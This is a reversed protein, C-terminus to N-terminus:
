HTEELGFFTEPDAIRKLIHTNLKSLDEQEQFAKILMSDIQAYERHYDFDHLFQQLTHLYQHEFPHLLPHEFLSGQWILIKHESVYSRLGDDYAYTAVLEDALCLTVSITKRFEVLGPLHAQWRNTEGAPGRAVLQELDEYTPYDKFHTHFDDISLVYRLATPNRPSRREGFTIGTYFSFLRATVALYRAFRAHVRRCYPSDAPYYKIDSSSPSYSQSTAQPHETPSSRRSIHYVAQTSSPALSTSSATELGPMSDESDSITTALSSTSTVPRLGPMSCDSCSGDSDVDHADAAETASSANVEPTAIVEMPVEAPEEDNRIAAAPDDHATFVESPSLIGLHRSVAELLPRFRGIRAADAPYPSQAPHRRRFAVPTEPVSRIVPPPSSYRAYMDDDDDLQDHLNNDTPALNTNIDDTSVKPGMSQADETNLTDADTESDADRTSLREFGRLPLQVPSMPYELEGDYEDDADSSSSDTNTSPTLTTWDSVYYDQLNSYAGMRRLPRPPSEVAPRPEYEQAAPPITLVISPQAIIDTAQPIDNADTTPRNTALSDQQSDHLLYEPSRLDHTDTTQATPIAPYYALLEEAKSAGPRKPDLERFRGFVSQPWFSAALWFLYEMLPIRICVWRLWNGRDLIHGEVYGGVLLNRPVVDNAMKLGRYLFRVAITLVHREPVSFYIFKPENLLDLPQLTDLDPLMRQGAIWQWIYVPPLPTTFHTLNELTAYIRPPPTEDESDLATGRTPANIAQAYRPEVSPIYILDRPSPPPTPSPLFPRPANSSEPESTANESNSTARDSETAAATALLRLDDAPPQVPAAAPLEIESEQDSEDDSILMRGTMDFVRPDSAKFHFCGHHKGEATIFEGDRYFTLVAGPFDLCAAVDTPDEPNRDLSVIRAHASSVTMAAPCLPESPSSLSLRLPPQTEPVRTVPMGKRITSIERFLLTGLPKREGRPKKDREALVRNIEDENNQAKEAAKELGELGKEGSKASLNLTSFIPKIPPINEKDSDSDEGKTKTAEHNESNIEPPKNDDSNPLFHKIRESLPIGEWDSSQDILEASMDLSRTTPGNLKASPDTSLASPDGQPASQDMDFPWSDVLINRNIEQASAPTNSPTRALTIESEQIPRPVTRVESFNFSESIAIRLAEINDLEQIKLEEGTISAEFILSNIEPPGESVLAYSQIGTLQGAELFHQNTVQSTCTEEGVYIKFRSKGTTPDKFVIFSGSPQEDISVLNERQWPRGLLLDFPLNEGGVWIDGITTIRGCQLRVREALGTLKSQGRNADNVLTHRTVDVPLQLRDAVGCRVLSLESGTDIIAKVSKDGHQLNIRILRGEPLPRRDPIPEANAVIPLPTPSISTLALPPKSNKFKLIDQLDTAIERSSGIIKRIPITIQTDLIEKVVERTDIERSIKSQRALGRGANEKNAPMHPPIDKPLTRSIRAPTPENDVDMPM